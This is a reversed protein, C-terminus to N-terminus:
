QFLGRATREIEEGASGEEATCHGRRCGGRGRALELPEDDDRVLGAHKGFTKFNPRVVRLSGM